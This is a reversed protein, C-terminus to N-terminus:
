PTAEISRPTVLRYYRHTAPASDTVSELHNTARAIVDTLKTWVGPALADKFQVTYTRNSMAQFWLTASGTNAVREVKLYSQADRPDTGAIYEDRNSSGDGDADLVADNVTANLQNTSEWADPMGDGDTDALVTLNCTANVALTPAAANTVVVRYTGGQNTQVNKLTFFCVREDLVINTLITSGRRWQYGFPAPNGGIGVSWTVNGGAVVSESLPPQLISPTLLVFLRTAPSTVSGFSNVLVTTYEGDHAMQINTLSFALNTAGLIDAGNFRWQCRTPVSSTIAVQLIVNSGPWASTTGTQSTILAPLVSLLAPQSTTSGFSNTVLVTYSGADNSTLNSLTLTANTGAPVPVGNFQWQYFLPATGVAAVTLSATGGMLASQSQPGFQFILPPGDNDAQYIEATSSSGSGGTILVNGNALLTATHKWRGYSMSATQMWTETTPDYLEASSQPPASYGGTVLVKGDLLLTATHAGRGLILSGTPTWIENAPDYVGASRVNNAETDRCPCGGVVLVNGNSLLTATHLWGAGDGPMYGAPTWTETAPDYLEAYINVVLVKGNPLLTATHERRGVSMSGTLTWTGSAPDYLEARTEGAGTFDSWGGAVLVKGNPLLTATHAGRGTIQMVGTFAWTGSAPDYLEGRPDYLAATGGGAVLVKGNPLLTATHTSRAAGLRGTQNWTGTAPDYLETITSDDGGVVLVKGNPLLTATHYWRGINMSGTSVFSAAKTDPIASLTLAVLALAVALPSIKNSRTKV